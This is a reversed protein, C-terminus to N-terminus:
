GVDRRYRRGNVINWVTGQSVGYMKAIETQAVGSNHLRRINDAQEDTLKASQHESGRKFPTRAREPELKLYVRINRIGRKFHENVNAVSLNSRAAINAISIGLASRMYIVVMQNTTIVKHARLGSLFRWTKHLTEDPPLYRYSIRELFEAEGNDLVKENLSPLGFKQKRIREHLYHEKSGELQWLAYEQVADEADIDHVAAEYRLKKPLERWMRHVRAQWLQDPTM